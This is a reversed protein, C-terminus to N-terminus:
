IEILDSLYLRGICLANSIYVAHFEDDESMRASGSMARKLFSSLAGTELNAKLTGYCFSKIQFAGVDIM